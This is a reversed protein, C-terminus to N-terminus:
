FTVRLRTWGDEETSLQYTTKHAELIERTLTLGVGQGTPKTSFFPTFIDQTASAPIGPGNDAIIFGKPFRTASIHINGGSGISERSNTLANIVVQELQAADARVIVETEPLDYSLNINHNALVTTMVDGTRRLLDNLNTRQHDPNPLRVVRAFNRMFTTMNEARNIVVPLYDQNLEMLGEEGDTAAELLSRLVSIIAANSNNVEHAMMRIVKGYAEKEASLIDATVDQIIIFGREFGRDIFNATEVHYRRNGPGTIVQDTRSVEATAQDDPESSLTEPRPRLHLFPGLIADHFGEVNKCQRQMWNNMSSVEGDYDLIVVGLEAAGLLRDLFEEQQRSNVREERLQDIMRNYVKGIRDMEISGTPLLKVSFDQDELAAAGRGLLQLPSIISRYIRYAIYASGLLVLEALLVYVGDGELLYFALVGLALHLVTLYLIYKLSSSM